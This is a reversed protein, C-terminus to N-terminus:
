RRGRPPTRPSGKRHSIPRADVILYYPVRRVGEFGARRQAQRATPRPEWIRHVAFGAHALLRTWTEFTRHWMALTMTHGTRGLKWRIEHPGEDYYGDVLWPGHRGVTERFWHAQPATNMPHSVSFVLRGDPGLLRSAGTLVKDLRPMDM